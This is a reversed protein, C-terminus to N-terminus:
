AHRYSSRERFRLAGMLEHHTLCARESAKEFLRDNHIFFIRSDKWWSKSGRTAFTVVGVVRNVALLTIASIM